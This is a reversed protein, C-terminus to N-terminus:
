SRSQQQKLGAKLRKLADDVTKRPLEPISDDEAEVADVRAFGFRPPLSHLGHWIDSPLFDGQETRFLERESLDSEYLQEIKSHADEIIREMQKKTSRRRAAEVILRDYAHLFKDYTECLEEMGAIGDEIRARDEAWRTAHRASETVHNSLRASIVELMRFAEAADHHAIESRERWVVIKDLQVEMDANRDQIEMVQDDVQEADEELVRFLETREDENMSQVPGGLSEAGVDEPLNGEKVTQMVADGAGETRKVATVCVDFHKVLSELGQAMEHAHEELMKLIKSLNPRQLDSDTASLAQKESLLQNIAQLDNELDRISKAMEHQSDQVGDIVNKMVSKLNEVPQEEVFDHLTNKTCSVEEAINAPAAKFADDIKTQQLVEIGQALRAEARDLDKIVNQFEVKVAYANGELEFQIGRLIKLQSLLSRRLYTTRAILAATSEVTSRAESIINNARHVNHISSLSRKAAVLHSILTEITVEAPPRHESHAPSSQTSSRPLSSTSKAMTLLLAPLARNGAYSKTLSKFFAALCTPLRAPVDFHHSFPTLSAMRV